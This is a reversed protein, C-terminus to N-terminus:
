LVQTWRRYSRSSVLYFVGELLFLLDKVVFNPTTEYVVVPAIERFVQYLMTSSANVGRRCSRLSPAEAGRVRPVM